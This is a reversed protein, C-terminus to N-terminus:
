ENKLKSYVDIDTFKGGSLLEGDRETGEHRFGLRKPINSSAINETACKIQVRNLNMEKFAYRCLAEVSLTMIGKKQFSDSLWYGIETRRNSKDTCKFGALGAFISEYHIVFVYDLSEEGLKIMQSVVSKTDEIRLTHEVFPLWRGLYERQSDITHFIDKADSMEIQKLLIDDTVKIQIQNKRM